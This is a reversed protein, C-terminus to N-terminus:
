PWRHCRYDQDLPHCSFLFPFWFFFCPQRKPFVHHVSFRFHFSISFPSIFPLNVKLVSGSPKTSLVSTVYQRCSILVVSTRQTEFIMKLGFVSCICLCFLVFNVKIPWTWGGVSNWTWWSIKILDAPEMNVIAAHLLSSQWHLPSRALIWALQRMLGHSLVGPWCTFLCTWRGRTKQGKRKSMRNHEIVLLRTQM